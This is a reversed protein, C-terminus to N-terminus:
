QQLSLGGLDWALLYLSIYPIESIRPGGSVYVKDRFKGHIKDFLEEHDKVFDVIVEEDSLTLYINTMHGKKRRSQFQSIGWEGGGRTEMESESRETRARKEAVPDELQSQTTKARRAEEREERQQKQAEYERERQEREERRIQIDAATDGLEFETPTDTPIEM